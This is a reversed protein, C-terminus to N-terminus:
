LIVTVKSKDSNMDVVLVPLGSAGSAPKKIGNSGDPVIEQRGLAITSDTCPLEMAGKIQVGVFEGNRSVVLGCISDSAGAKKVTKNASVAVLDGIAASATQFTVVVDSIGNFCVSM